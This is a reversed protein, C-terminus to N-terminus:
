PGVALHTCDPYKYEMSDNGLNIIITKAQLPEKGAKSWDSCMPRGTLGIPRVDVDAEDVGTVDIGVSIGDGDGKAGDGSGGADGGGEAALLQPSQVIEEEVVEFDM